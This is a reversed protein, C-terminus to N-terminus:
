IIDEGFQTMKAEKIAENVATEHEEDSDRGMSVLYELENARYSAPSVELSGPVVMSVRDSIPSDPRPVPKKRKKKISPPGKRIITIKTVKTPTTYNVKSRTSEAPPRFLM